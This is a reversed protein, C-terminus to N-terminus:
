MSPTLFFHHMSFHYVIGVYFIYVCCVLLTVIRIKLNQTTYHTVITIFFAVVSTILLIMIYALSYMATSPERELEKNYFALICSLISVLLIILISKGISKM